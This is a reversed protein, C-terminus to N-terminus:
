GKFCGGGCQNSGCLVCAGHSSDYTTFQGGRDNEERVVRIDMLACGGTALKGSIANRLGYILASEELWSSKDIMLRVEVLM